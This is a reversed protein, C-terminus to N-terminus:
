PAVGSPNNEVIRVGNELITKIANKAEPPANGTIMQQEIRLPGAATIFSSTSAAPIQVEYGMIAIESIYEAASVTDMEMDVMWPGATYAVPSPYNTVTKFNEYWVGGFSSEQITNKQNAYLMDDLDNMKDDFAENVMLNAGIASFGTVGGVVAGLIDLSAIKDLIGKTESVGTKWAEEERAYERNLRNYDRQGSMVYDSYTNSTIPVTPMPITYAMGRASGAMDLSSDAAAAPYFFIKLYAGASGFDNLIKVSKVDMGWPLTAIMNGEFDMLVMEDADTTKFDVTATYKGCSSPEYRKGFIIRDEVAITAHASQVDANTTQWGYSGYSFYNDPPIPTLYCGEISPAGTLGAVSSVFAKVLEDMLGAYVYKVDLGIRATNDSGSGYEGCPTFINWIETNSATTTVTCIACAWLVNHATTPFLATKSKYVRHRPKLSRPRAYSSDNCRRVVGAGFTVSGSYSRWWDVSWKMVVGEASTSRQEISDIWGFLSVSGAGDTAEIYLYSMGFTQTFSLPLHLETLTSGKHPRLTEDAALTYDPSAPLKLSGAPPVEVCRRTYGPDKWMKLKTITLAM